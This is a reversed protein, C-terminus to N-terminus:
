KLITELHELNLRKIFQEFVFPVSKGVPYEQELKDNIDHIEDNECSNRIMTFVLWHTSVVASLYYLSIIIIIFFGM